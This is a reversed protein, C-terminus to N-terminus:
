VYFAVRSGFGIAVFETCLLATSPQDGDCEIEIVQGSVDFELISYTGSNPCELSYSRQTPESPDYSICRRRGTCAPHHILENARQGISVVDIKTCSFTEMNIEYTSYMTEALVRDGWRHIKRIGDDWDRAFQCISERRSANEEVHWKEITYAKTGVLLMNDPTLHLCTVNADCQITQMLVGQFPEIFETIFQVIVRPLQALIQALVNGIYIRSPSKRTGKEGLASM